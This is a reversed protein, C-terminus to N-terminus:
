VATFQGGIYTRGDSQNAITWVTNNPFDMKPVYGFAFTSAGCTYFDIKGNVVITETAPHSASGDPLCSGNEYTMLGKTNFSLDGEHKV